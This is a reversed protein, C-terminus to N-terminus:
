IGRRVARRDDVRAHFATQQTEDAHAQAARLPELRDLRTPDLTVDQGLAAVELVARGLPHELGVAVAARLHLEAELHLRIEPHRRDDAWPNELARELAAADVGHPTDLGKGAHAVTAGDLEHRRRPRSADHRVLL